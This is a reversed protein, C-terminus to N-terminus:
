TDEFSSTQDRFHSLEQSKEEGKLILSCNLLRQAEEQIMHSHKKHPPIKIERVQGDPFIICIDESQEPNNQLANVFFHLARSTIRTRYLNIHVIPAKSNLLHMLSQDTVLNMHNLFVRRLPYHNAFLAISADSLHKQHALYLTDIHPFQDRLVNHFLTHIQGDNLQLHDQTRFNTLVKGLSSIIPLISSSKRLTLSPHIDQTFYEFGQTWFIQLAQEIPLQHMSSSQVIRTKSIRQLCIESIQFPPHLDWMAVLHHSEALTVAQDNLKSCGRFSLIKLHHITHAQKHEVFAQIVGMGTFDYHRCNVFTIQALYPYEGLVCLVLDHALSDTLLPSSIKLGLGLSSKIIKISQSTKVHLNLCQKLTENLEQINNKPEYPRLKPLFKAVSKILFSFVRLSESQFISPSPLPSNQQMSESFYKEEELVYQYEITKRKAQRSSRRM